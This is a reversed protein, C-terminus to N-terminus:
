PRPEGLMERLKRVQRGASQDAALEYIESTRGMAEGQAEVQAIAWLTELLNRTIIGHPLSLIEDIVQNRQTTM